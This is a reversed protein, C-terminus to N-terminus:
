LRCESPIRSGPTTPPKALGSKDRYSEVRADFLSLQHGTKDPDWFTVIKEDIFSTFMCSEVFASFFESCNSPQDSIFATKDFNQFQERNKTWQEHSQQPMIIFNEYNSFQEVFYSAFVDRIVTAFDAESRNTAYDWEGRQDEEEDDLDYAGEDLSATPSLPTKIGARHPTIIPCHWTCTYM